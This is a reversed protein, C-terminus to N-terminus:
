SGVRFRDHPANAHRADQKSKENTRRKPQYSGDELTQQPVIEGVRLEESYTRTSSDTSSDTGNATTNTSGPARSSM